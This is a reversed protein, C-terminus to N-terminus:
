GLATVVAPSISHSAFATNRILARDFLGSIKWVSTIQSRHDVLAESESREHEVRLGAREDPLAHRDRDAITTQAEESCHNLPLALYQGLGVEHVRGPLSCGHLLCVERNLDSRQPLEEAVRSVPALPDRGHGTDA